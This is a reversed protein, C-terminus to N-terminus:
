RGIKSCFWQSDPQPYGHGLGFRVWLAIAALLLWPVFVIVIPNQIRLLALVFAIGFRLSFFFALSVSGWIVPSGGRGRAMSAISSIALFLGIIEIIGPM